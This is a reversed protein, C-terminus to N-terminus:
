DGPVVFIELASGVAHAGKGAFLQRGRDIEHSGEVERRGEIESEEVVVADMM